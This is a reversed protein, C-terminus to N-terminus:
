GWLDPEIKLHKMTKIYDKVSEVLSFKPSYGLEERARSINMIPYGPGFGIYDLGPGIEIVTDPYFEKIANALDRLTEARGTGINYTYHKPKEVFLAQIVSSAVDRVYVMDDKQDGGRFVKIPQGLMATEIMRSHVAIPGHRAQKGIGYVTAFRLALFDIGYAQRYHTGIRECAVKFTGYLWVGDIPPRMPYSEDVLKYTPHGYEGDVPGFVAKSSTFIVRKVGLIRAAELVNATGVVNIQLATYPDAQCAGPMSFALHAIADIKYDQITRLIAPLDRVDGIVVDLKNVIDALLFTDLRNDYIIPKHGKELLERTVWAGNVGMGGTVLINM